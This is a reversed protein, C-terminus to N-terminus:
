RLLSDQGGHRAANPATLLLRSVHLTKSNKWLEEEALLVRVVEAGIVPAISPPNQVEETWWNCLCTDTASVLTCILCQLRVRRRLIPMGACRPERMLEGGARKAEQNEGATAFPRWM